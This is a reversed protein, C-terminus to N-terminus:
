SAPPQEPTPWTLTPDDTFAEPEVVLRTGRVDLVRIKQGVGLPTGGSTNAKWEEAGVKVTGADEAGAPIAEIVSGTVGVLRNAGIGAVDPANADLRRALPRMALFGVFSSVLFLPFSIAPGAGLLSAIGALLAGLAFPALFFTGAMALEAVGLTVMMALWIVAWLGPDDM